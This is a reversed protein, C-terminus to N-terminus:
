GDPEGTVAPQRAFREPRFPTLDLEPETGTIVQTLLAGTAVSLGIGAGEHGCGHLLGPARPDAGIVPLHDPCYPRFGHYHRLARVGALAPFLAIAKRALTGLVVPPVSHDFGVRERSSGILITGSPTGEIVPSTQLGADSSAVNDVYDASYVKHRILRGVPETVLIFGRRPLVPLELGARAAVERAWTGAANIVSGAALEIGGALRVGTVRDGSRVFGIVESGTRVEAGFGRALRLLWAAALMPQVQADEPYHAGGALGRILEPELEAVRDPDLDDVVVGVQRQAATLRRLAALAAESGAVVVGGKDEFEWRDRHEALDERWVRQAYRALDLEPGPGKDSVLLNGEGASSTGGAIGARDVVITRLGARAAFYACSAGVIGAGIIVVDAAM